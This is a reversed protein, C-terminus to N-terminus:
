IQAQIFQATVFFDSVTILFCNPLIHSISVVSIAM